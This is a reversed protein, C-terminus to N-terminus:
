KTYINTNYIINNYLLNIIIVDLALHLALVSFLSPEVSGSTVREMLCPLINEKHLKYITDINPFM